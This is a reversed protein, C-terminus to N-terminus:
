HFCRNIMPKKLDNNGKFYDIIKGDEKINECKVQWKVSSLPRPVRKKTSISMLFWIHKSINGPSLLFLSLNTESVMDLFGYSM